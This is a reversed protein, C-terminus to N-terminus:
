KIAHAIYNEIETTNGPKAIAPSIYKPPNLLGKEILRSVIPLQELSVKGALLHNFDDTTEYANLMQHLGQLYLHDKTFGGGRYVRACITFALQDSAQYEEKLLLFTKKFDRENVLSDVAIVRLALAKFRPVSMSGSLYECLIALGEQTLTNLPSGFILAKNPQQRANLTTVLHVGLEHNALACAETESVEIAPNIKLTTGSVLANAIMSPDMKIEYKYGQKDAFSRMYRELDTSSLTAEQDYENPDPLHLIFQANKLDKETPEGYYRLSEYYFDATGITQFQSVKDSYSHIIDTYLLCLDEDELDEVPLNYLERKCKFVDIQPQNYVFKPNDRFKSEFFLAKQEAYNLPSVVSLIDVGGVLNQLIKDIQDVIKKM